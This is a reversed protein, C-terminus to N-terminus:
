HVERITMGKFDGSEADIKFRKYIRTVSAADEDREEEGFFRHMTLKKKVEHRIDHTTSIQRPRFYGLTIHWLNESELLEVEELRLDLIPEDPALELLYKKARSVAEQPAIM